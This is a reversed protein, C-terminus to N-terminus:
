PFLRRLEAVASEVDHNVVQHAYHAAAAVETKANELRELLATRGETGRDTIRRELEEMTPPLIFVGTIEPHNRMMELAGQVDIMLVTLYGADVLSEVGARPTGYWNGHVFKHELLEGDNVMQDFEAQSLFHYDRGDEEGDRPARTTCTIVKALRSDLEKWRRFLTDKGVGSPGSLIIARGKM